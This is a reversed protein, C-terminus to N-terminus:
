EQRRVFLWTFGPPAPPLCEGVAAHTRVGTRAGKANMQAYIGTVPVADGPASRVSSRKGREEFEQALSDLFSAIRHDTCDAMAARIRVANHRFYDADM